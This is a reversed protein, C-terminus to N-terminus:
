LLASRPRQDDEEEEEEEGDSGRQYINMGSEDASPSFRIETAKRKSSAGAVALARRTGSTTQCPRQKGGCRESVKM